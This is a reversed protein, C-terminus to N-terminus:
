KEALTTHIDTRAAQIAPILAALLGLALSFLFIWTEEPLWLWGTFRYRFDELLYVSLWQMAGHSIILGAVWGMFSLFLGELIILSFLTSRGAGMVRILALEYKREKM